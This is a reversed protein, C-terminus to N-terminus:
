WRKALCGILVLGDDSTSIVTRAEPHRAVFRATADNKEVDDVLVAGGASLAPWVQELEFRVNRGTHMSDHVFLDVQRLDPLLGRLRRRSSGRLLTWRERLRDPVATGTETAAGQGFPPLDISWLHGGGGRQLAELLVCTTLGRGVGTEVVRRPRLHRALCWALRGLRRDGDDWRGFSLRGVPLGRAELRELAAAWVEDFAAREECPWPAGLLEHVGAEGADSAEYPWPQRRSDRWEALRELTYEATERPRTAVARAARAAFTLGGRPADRM